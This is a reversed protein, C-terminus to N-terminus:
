TLRLWGIVYILVGLVQMQAEPNHYQESWKTM